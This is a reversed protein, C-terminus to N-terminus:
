SVVIRLNTPAGPPDIPAGTLPHPYAYPAYYVSWNNATGCQFFTRTDTAWYGVNLTCTSPRASQLGVGVGVSGNFSSVQNYVERNPLTHYVSGRTCGSIDNPNNDISVDVRSGNMLNSWGYMPKLQSPGSQAGFPGFYHGASDLCAAGEQGAKNEDWPSSGSCIGYPAYSSCSRYIQTQFGGSYSGGGSVTSTNGWIMGTGGRWNAIRSLNATVNQTNEYIEISAMGREGSGSDTGHNTALYTNTVTNHRFVYKAGLYGEMSADNSTNGYNFINDEVFLGHNQGINYPRTFVHNVSTGSSDLAGAVNRGGEITISQASNGGPVLFSNHDVVWSVDYANMYGWVARKGINAFTNHDIRLSNLGDGVGDIVIIAENSAQVTNQGNFTFGTVRNMAYAGSTQLQLVRSSTAVTITTIGIGAGQLTIGKGTWGVSSSWSCTGSPVTVTDGNQAANVASQVQATGCSAAAITAAQVPCALFLGLVAVCVKV